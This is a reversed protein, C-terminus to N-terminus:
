RSPRIRRDWRFRWVGSISVTRARALEEEEVEKEGQEPGPPPFLLVIKPVSEVEPDLGMGAAGARRIMELREKLQVDEEVVAPTFTRPAVRGLGLEDLCVFVGPNSVDVLSTRVRSGDPLELVDVPNGTPLARGTKAGAPDVFSLTIRSQKGPVGDMAYSGAPCYREEPGGGDGGGGDHVRFRAHVMKATNTNFIRVLAERYEEGEGEGVGVM